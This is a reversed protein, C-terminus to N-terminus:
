DEAGSEHESAPPTAKKKTDPKAKARNRKKAGAAALASGVNFSALNAPEYFAKDDLDKKVIVPIAAASEGSKVARIAGMAAQTPANAMDARFESWTSDAGVMPIGECQLYGEEDLRLRIAGQNPVNATDYFSRFLRIVSVQQGPAMMGAAAARQVGANFAAFSNLNKRARASPDKPEPSFRVLDTDRIDEWSRGVTPATVRSFHLTQAFGEIDSAKAGAFAHLLEDDETIGCRECSSMCPVVADKQSLCALRLNTPFDKESPDLGVLLRAQLSKEESIHAELIITRAALNASSITDVCNEDSASVPFRTQVEGFQAHLGTAGNELSGGMCYNSDFASVVTTLGDGFKAIMSMMYAPDIQSLAAIIEAVDPELERVYCAGFAMSKTDQYVRCGRFGGRAFDLSGDSDWNAAPAVARNGGMNAAVAADAPPSMRKGFCLGIADVLGYGFGEYDPCVEAFHQIAIAIESSTPMAHLAPPEQALTRGLLLMIRPRNRAYRVAHLDTASGPGHTGWQCVDAGLITLIISLDREELRQGHDAVVVIDEPPVGGAAPNFGAPVNAPANVIAGGGYLWRIAQVDNGVINGAVGGFEPGGVGPPVLGPNLLPLMAYGNPAPPAEFRRAGAGDLANLGGQFEIQKAAIFGRWLHTYLLTAWLRKDTVGTLPPFYSSLADPSWGRATGGTCPALRKYDRQSSADIVADSSFYQQASAKLVLSQPCDTRLRESYNAARNAQAHPVAGTTRSVGQHLQFVGSSQAAADGNANIVRGTFQLRRDTVYRGTAFDFPECYTSPGTVLKKIAAILAM